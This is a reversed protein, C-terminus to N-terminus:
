RAPTVIVRKKESIQRTSTALAGITREVGGAYDIEVVARGSRPALKLVVGGFPPSDVLWGQRQSRLAAASTSRPVPARRDDVKRRCGGGSCSSRCRPDRGHSGCDSGRRRGRPGSCATTPPRAPPQEGRIPHSSGAAAGQDSCTTRAALTGALRRPQPPQVPDGSGRSPVAAARRPAHPTASVDTRRARCGLRSRGMTGAPPVRRRDLGRPDATRRSPRPRRSARVRRALRARGRPVPPGLPRLISLGTSSARRALEYHYPFLEYHLIASSRLATWRRRASSGPRRTRATGASRSSPRSRASNRGACSSTATDAIRAVYGGIDSGWTSYGVVGATQASRVANELGDWTGRLDGSWSGTVLKQSGTFGARFIM